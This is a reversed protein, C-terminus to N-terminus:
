MQRELIDEALTELEATWDTPPTAPRLLFKSFGAELWEDVREHLAARSQPIVQEPDLDPRRQRLQKAALAPLPGRSYTLNVGYHEPDIARGAEAASAEIVQRKAAAEAPTTLGPIWGDGLRGARRLAGLLLGGLWMELPDQVPTPFIRAERLQYRPGDHNVVDGRWLQRLLPLVEDLRAGREAKDVDQAMVESQAPQGLVMILLLRGRSLRDLNALERALRAPNRGPVALYAGIKLHETRAAAYTLGVIPDFAGNLMSEPLWISDFGLRELDDVLQPFDELGLDAQGRCSFGFRVKM